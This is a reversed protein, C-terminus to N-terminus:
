VDNNASAQFASLIQLYIVRMRVAEYAEFFITNVLTLVSASSVANATRWTLILLKLPNTRAEFIELEPGLSDGTQRNTLCSKQLNWFINRHRKVAKM